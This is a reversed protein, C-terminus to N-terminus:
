VVRQGSRRAEEPQMAPAANVPISRLAPSPVGWRALAGGLPSPSADVLVYDEAGESEGEEFKQM